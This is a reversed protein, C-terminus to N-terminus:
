KNKQGNQKINSSKDAQKNCIETLKRETERASSVFNRNVLFFFFSFQDCPGWQKLDDLKNSLGFLDQNFHDYVVKIWFSM